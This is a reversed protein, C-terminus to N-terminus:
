RLGKARLYATGCASFERQREVAHDLAADLMLAREDEDTHAAIRRLNNVLEDLRDKRRALLDTRNLDLRTRTVEAAARGEKHFIMPGVFEFEDSPECEYPDLLGLHSSKRTNCVDCALTLNEWVFSRDINESKPVIHEIDGYTVHLPYSECYACKSFTEKILAEKIPAQNYKGRRYSVKDGGRAIEAKLEALWTAAM